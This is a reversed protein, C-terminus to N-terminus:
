AGLVTRLDAVTEVIEVGADRMAQIQAVKTEEAIARTAELVVITRFGADVADLASYAVCYDLALGTLVVTDIKRDKLFGALGTRTEKDNEMFASYSDVEPNMGKRVTLIATNMVEETLVLEAGARGQVCHDPWLVQPGYPMETMTFPAADEHNSAFSKHDAPHWDQTLVVTDILRSLKIIPSIVFEGDPVALAGDTLFDKQVDIVILATNQTNM